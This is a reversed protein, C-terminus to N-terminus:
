PGGLRSMRFPMREWSKHLFYAKGTDDPAGNWITVSLCVDLSGPYTKGANSGYYLDTNGYTTSPFPEAQLYRFLWDKGAPQGALTPVDVDGMMTPPTASPIVALIVNDAVSSTSVVPPAGPGVFPAMIYKRIRGIVFVDNWSGNKNIDM